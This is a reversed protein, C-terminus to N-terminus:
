ITSLMMSLDIKPVRINVRIPKLSLEVFQWAMGAETHNEMRGNSM